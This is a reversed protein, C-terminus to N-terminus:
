ANNSENWNHKRWKWTSLFIERQKSYFALSFNLKWLLSSGWLFKGCQSCFEGSYIPPFHHQWLIFSSFFVFTLINWLLLAYHFHMFIVYRRLICIFQQSKLACLNRQILFFNMIIEPRLKLRRTVANKPNLMWPSYQSNFILYLSQKTPFQFIWKLTHGM